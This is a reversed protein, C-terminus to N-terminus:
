CDILRMVEWKTGPLKGTLGWRNIACPSVTCVVGRILQDAKDMTILCLPQPTLPNALLVSLCVSLRTLLSTLLAVSLYAFLNIAMCMGYPM